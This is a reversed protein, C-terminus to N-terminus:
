IHILSLMLDYQVEAALFVDYINEAYKEKRYADVYTAKANSRFGYIGSINLVRKSVYPSIRKKFEEEGSKTYTLYEKVFDQAQRKYVDSKLNYYHLWISAWPM